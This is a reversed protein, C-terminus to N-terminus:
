FFLGDYKFINYWAKIAKAKIQVPKYALNSDDDSLEWRQIQSFNHM